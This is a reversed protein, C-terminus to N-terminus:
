KRCGIEQLARFDLGQREEKIKKGKDKIKRM